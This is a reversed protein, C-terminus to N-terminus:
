ATARGVGDKYRVLARDRATRHDVIPQPYGHKRAIDAGGRQWPDHITRDDLEALEPIWKRIYAGAADFKESQLL